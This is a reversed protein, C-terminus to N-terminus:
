RRLSRNTLYYSFLAAVHQASDAPVTIISMKIGKEKIVEDIGKIDQVVVGCYCNGIKEKNNDLAVILNFGQKRFGPYALLARGLSGAGILVVNWVRCTGLIETIKNKLDKVNYGTGAIGFQGFHALDKRVQTDLICTINGIEVSTITSKGKSEVM